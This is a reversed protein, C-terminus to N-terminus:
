RRAALLGIILGAVAAIGVGKWPNARVYNEAAGAVAKSKALLAAEQVALRARAAKLSEEAKLRAASIREGTQGVTAKLLDEADALVAKLDEMLKKKTVQEVETEAATATEEMNM